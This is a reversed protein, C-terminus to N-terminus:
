AFDTHLQGTEDGKVSLEVTYTYRDGRYRTEVYFLPNELADFVVRDVSLVPDGAHLELRRALDMDAVDARVSQRATAMNVGNDALLSMLSVQELTKADLNSGIAPPLFDTTYAFIQGDLLRIRSLRIVTPDGLNLMTAVHPPASIQELKVDRVESRETEFILESLSGSFNQGVVSSGRSLVRTGRGSSRAVLNESVLVGVAQRVTVRSVGYDAVLRAESPLTSGVPYAGSSIMQRLVRALQHYLPMTGQPDLVHPTM